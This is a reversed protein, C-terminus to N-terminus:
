TGRHWHSTPRTTPDHRSDLPKGTLASVPVIEVRAFLIAHMHMDLGCIALHLDPEFRAGFQRLVVAHGLSLDRLNQLHYLFPMAFDFFAPMLVSSTSTVLM